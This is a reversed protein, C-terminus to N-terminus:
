SWAPSVCLKVNSQLNFVQIYLLKLNPSSEFQKVREGKLQIQKQGMQSLVLGSNVWEYTPDFYEDDNYITVYRHACQTRTRGELTSAVVQWNTEGYEAVAKRLEKDEPPAWENKKNYIYKSEKSFTVFM